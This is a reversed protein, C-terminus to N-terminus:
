QHPMAATLLRVFDESTRQWAPERLKGDPSGSVFYVYVFFHEHAPDRRCNETLNISFEVVATGGPAIMRPREAGDLHGMKGCTFALGKAAERESPTLFRSASLLIQYTSIPQTTRNELAVAIIAHEADPFDIKANTLRVPDGDRQLSTVAVAPVIAGGLAMIVCALLNLGAM